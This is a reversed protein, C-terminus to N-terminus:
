SLELLKLESLETEKEILDAISKQSLINLCADRIIIFTNKIGCTAEDLCEECKHYYNLSACSVMAIPGDTLRLIQVLPIDEPNKNLSYGGAVGKKSHVFGANRLEGLIASLYKVPINEGAAIDSIRVPLNKAEKGLHILAKIAYKTKKSLM